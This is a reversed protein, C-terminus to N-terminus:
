VEWDELQLEQIRNFEQTNHTVLTLNNAIATSAILLDNPGIPKGIKELDARIRSYVRAAEDDFPISVLQNVFRLQKKLTKDPNNSKMAGFFLEAKVISCLALEGQRKSELQLKIKESRGNLFVICTNTDLLYTM